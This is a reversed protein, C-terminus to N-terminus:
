YEIKDTYSDSNLIDPNNYLKINTKEIKTYTSINGASDININQKNKIDIYSYSKDYVYWYTYIDYKKCYYIYAGRNSDFRILINDDLYQTTPTMYSKTYSNYYKYTYNGDSEKYSFKWINNSPNWVYGNDTIIFDLDDLYHNQFYSNTIPIYENHFEKIVKDTSIESRTNISPYNTCINLNMDITKKNVEASSMDIKNFQIIEESPFEISCQINNGLYNINYYQQFILKDILEQILILSENMNSLTYHLTVSINLPIRKIESNFGRINNGDRREYNGRSFSSSLDNTPVSINSFELICRPLHMYMQDEGTTEKWSFEYGDSEVYMYSSGTNFIFHQISKNYLLINSNLWMILGKIVISIFREDRNYLDDFKTINWPRKWPEIKKNIINEM